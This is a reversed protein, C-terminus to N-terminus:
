AEMFSAVFGRAGGRREPPPPTPPPTQRADIFRSHTLPSTPPLTAADDDMKSPSGDEPILKAAVVDWNAGGRPSATEAITAAVVDWNAGSAPSPVEHRRASWGLSVGM